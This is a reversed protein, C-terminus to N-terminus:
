SGPQAFDDLLGNLSSVNPGGMLKRGSRGDRGVAPLSRSHRMWRAPSGATEMMKEIQEVSVDDFSFAPPARLPRHARPSPAQNRDSKEVSALITPDRIVALLLAAAAIQTPAAHGPSRIM